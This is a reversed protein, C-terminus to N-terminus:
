DTGSGLRTPDTIHGDRIGLQRNILQTVFFLVVGIAVLTAAVIYQQAPRGSLPTVLFLSALFGIVPLATPTKFHGGAERVDRRLALVAVNVVAFVALLLLSTTGGLVAIANSSAFTSVYIILGFAILTTFLIAVWPSRRTPHVTGLVPPLVHQRAMGYILRSAMLMNILATNSVAFMTMFPLIADIPLGPAGARVVEVLPTDSEELRGVPVLAVAVISILVYVVGAISLGSLLIKPFTNVPDKTEEAMNVSDEFGVMAFFALSTAATVALFTNKDEGTEFATIRSFDVDAGGTFAWLGVLVVVVLGTIEVITLVVNLRVSEGVGRYNVAALAAMFLLALVVVGLKSADIGAGEFFNAAFARSATAASTIGSCMVVFAVLFTIFHIGFAKHAYLAAGAAQPYKTVLELYSFATVTAIAFAVLFPLWAAGGVEGAVDGVLAYVGTGLIDGVVFLLLLGPGMVRKLEPQKEPSRPGAVSESM